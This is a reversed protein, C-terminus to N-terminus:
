THTTVWLGVLTIMGSSPVSDSDLPLTARVLSELVLRLVM